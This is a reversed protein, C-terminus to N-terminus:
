ISIDRHRLMDVWAPVSLYGFIGSWTPLNSLFQAISLVLNLHVMEQMKNEVYQSQKSDIMSSVRLSVSSTPRKSIKPKPETSSGVVMCVGHRTQRVSYSHDKTMVQVQLCVVLWPETKPDDNPAYLGGCTVTKPRWNVIIMVTPTTSM